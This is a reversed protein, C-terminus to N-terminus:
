VVLEVQKGLIGGAANLEEVAVIMGDRLSEGTQVGGPPSLPAIGGIKITEQSWGAATGAILAFVAATCVKSFTRMTVGGLPRTATPVPTRCRWGKHPFGSLDKRGRDLTHRRHTRQLRGSPKSEDRIAVLCAE